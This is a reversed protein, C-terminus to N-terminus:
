EEGGEEERNFGFQGNMDQDDDQPQRADLRPQRNDCPPRDNSLDDLGAARLQAAFKQWNAMDRAVDAPAAKPFSSPHLIFSSDSEIREDKRRGGEAKRPIPTTGRLVAERATRPRGQSLTDSADMRARRCDWCLRRPDSPDCGELSGGCDRCSRPKSPADTEPVSATSM